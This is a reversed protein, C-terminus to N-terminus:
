RLREWVPRLKEEVEAVVGTLIEPVEHAAAAAFDLWRAEATKTNWWTEAAFLSRAAGRPDGRSSFSVATAEALQQQDMAAADLLLRLDDLDKPRWHRVGMRWLAHLKRGVITEPRCMWLPFSDGSSLVYPAQEPPPFLEEGFTVDVSFVHSNPGIRGAAHMRVGPFDTNLWIGRVRRRSDFVIGDGINPATLLAGLRRETEEVDFPFTAALDLDGAFRPLPRFWHRLLMGGRLAFSSAHLSNALRRLVGELLRHHIPSETQRKVNM